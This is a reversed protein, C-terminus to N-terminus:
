GKKLSWRVGMRVTRGAEPRFIPLPTNQASFRGTNPDRSDFLNDVAGFVEIGKPIGKAAYVDWLGFSPALTEAGSAARSVIWKSYFSGRLNARFNLRPNDYALRVAGQHRNRNTLYLRTDKDFADLYTYAGSLQFGHPLRVNGDAEIGKTVVNAQNEYVFLLRNLVVFSKLSPDLGERAFIADVQASSFVFGLSKANILNRVDNRFLNLGVRVRRAPSVYEGGAQWSGSHEPNLNPNGLVQYLSTPNLFRYYLQGLDPARFGRGWSVRLRLGDRVRVNLGAKPSFASGFVSHHDFRGGLTLTLRHNLNIKDQAWFVNTDAQYERDGRL